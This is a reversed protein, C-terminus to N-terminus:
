GQAWPGNDQRTEMVLVTNALGDKIDAFKIRRDYGFVGARRHGSHLTAADAGRGAIGVYDTRFPVARHDAHPAVPCQYFKMNFQTHWRNEPADWAAATSIAKYLADHEVYPLLAVMWSLRRSPPLSPHAITGSPLFQPGPNANDPTPQGAAHTHIALG